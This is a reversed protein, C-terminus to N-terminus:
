GKKPRHWAAPKMPQDCGKSFVELLRDARQNWGSHLRFALLATGATPAAASHDATSATLPTEASPAADSTSAPVDAAQPPLGRFSPEAGAGEEAAVPQSQSREWEEWLRRPTDVRTQGADDPFAPGPKTTHSHPPREDIGESADSSDIVRGQRVFVDRVLRDPGDSHIEYIRYHNDPVRSLIAPLNALADDPLRYDASEAGSPLVVRLVVYNESAAVSDSRVTELDASSLFLPNSSRALAGADLQPPRPFYLQPVQPTTDIRVFKEAGEGPVEAYTELWHSGGDDDIVTVLIRIDAAPNALDPPAFYRHEASFSVIGPGNAPIASITGDGWDVIVTFTERSGGPRELPNLPNDYGPDSFSGEITVRGMADVESDDLELLTPAVNEVTVLFTQEDTGGDDDAVTVTVTYQGDDAYVHSGDFSGATPVGPSGPADITVGGSDHPTGDGWDITYTFTETPGFGPDTLTGLDIISLIAGETTTQNDVVTLAPEVNLIEASAWGTVQGSQGDDLVYRVTYQGNDAYTHTGSITGAGNAFDVTGPSATGDGWDISVALSDGNGSYTFHRALTLPSGEDARLYQSPSASYVADPQSYSYFGIRGGPFPHDAPAALDFELQGNVYVLLRDPGHEITFRYEVDSAWGQNGLNTARALEAVGDRHGWFDWQSDPIGRVRSVALGKLGDVGGGIGDAQRWDVLLYDADANSFDGPQFGLVFGIYDDDRNGVVRIMVDLPAAPAAFDSYFVTPQGNSEQTVTAGIGDVSWTGSGRQYDEQVWGRLDSSLVEFVPEGAAATILTESSRALGGDIAPDVAAVLPSASLVRRSELPAVYLCVANDDRVGRVDGNLLRRLDAIWRM